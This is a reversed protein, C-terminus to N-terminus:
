YVNCSQVCRMLTLPFRQGQCTYACSKVDGHLIMPM